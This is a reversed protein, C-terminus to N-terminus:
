KHAKKLSERYVRFFDDNESVGRQFIKELNDLDSLNVIMNVSKNFAAMNDMTKFRDSFLVVFINRRVAMLLQDLYKLVHNADPNQAGFKENLAILDFEHGRMQKLADRPNQCESVHYGMSKLVSTIRQRVGADPECIMATVAGEELWDFPAGLSSPEKEVREDPSAPKQSPEPAEPGRKPPAPKQAGPDVTIKNKCKPCTVAITQGEPIGELKKDPIKIRASCNACAVDM